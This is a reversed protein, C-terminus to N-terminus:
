ISSSAHGSAVRYCPCWLRWSGALPERVTERRPGPASSNRAAVSRVEHLPEHTGMRHRVDSGKVFTHPNRRIMPQAYSIDLSQVLQLFVEGDFDPTPLMDDDWLFLHTYASTLEGPLHDRYLAWKAGQIRKVTVGDRGFWEEEEWTTADYAFFYYDYARHGMREILANVCSRGKGGIPISVLAKGLLPLPRGQFLSRWQSVNKYIGSTCSSLSTAKANTRPNGVEALARADPGGVLAEKPYTTRSSSADVFKKDGPEGEFVRLGKAPPGDAHARRPALALALAILLNM